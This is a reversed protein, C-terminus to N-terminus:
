EESMEERLEQVAEAYVKQIEEETMGLLRSIVNNEVGDPNKLMFKRLSNFFKPSRIFDEDEKIRKQIDEKEAM